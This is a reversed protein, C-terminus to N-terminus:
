NIIQKKEPIAFFLKADSRSSTSSIFANFSSSKLRTSFNFNTSILLFSSTFFCSSSLSPLLLLWFSCSALFFSVVIILFLVISLWFDLRTTRLEYSLTLTNRICHVQIYIRHEYKNTTTTTVRM